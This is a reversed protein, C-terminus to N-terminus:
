SANKRPRGVSQPLKAFEAVSKTEVAWARENLKQGRLTKDILLQRIRGVTCGIREAAEQVSIFPKAPLSM